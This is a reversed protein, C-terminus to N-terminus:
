YTGIREREREREGGVGRESELGGGVVAKMPVELTSGGPRPNITVSLIVWGANELYELGIFDLAM